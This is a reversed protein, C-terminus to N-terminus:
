GCRTVTVASKNCAPPLPTATSWTLSHQSSLRSDVVGKTVGNGYYGFTYFAPDNGNAGPSAGTYSLTWGMKVSHSPRAIPMM